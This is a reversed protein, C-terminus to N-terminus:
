VLIVHPSSAYRAFGLKSLRENVVLALEPDCREERSGKLSKDECGFGELIDSVSVPQYM